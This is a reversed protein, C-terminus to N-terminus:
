QSPTAGEHPFNQNTEAGRPPGPALRPPAPRIADPRTKLTCGCCKILGEMRIPLKGVCVYHWLQYPNDEHQIVLPKTFIPKEERYGM